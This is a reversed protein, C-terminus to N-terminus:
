RNKRRVIIFVGACLTICVPVLTLVLTYQTAQAETISEIEYNAFEKFDLGVPVPERGCLGIASLMFDGNGYANSNIYKSSMFDTSGCLMVFSSTDVTGYLEQESHKEVSVALLRFPDAATAAAVERDNVWATASSSSNFMDYVGRGLTSNYGNTFSSSHYIAAANEFVVMPPNSRDLLDEAWASMLESDSYSAVVSSSDGLLSNSNDRVRYVEEGPQRVSLGWDALFEELQPLEGTEPSIFVMYSKRQDLFDDIKTIEDTALAGDNKALFDNKPDFTILIRCEEPIDQTSLDIPMYRYGANELVTFFPYLYNGDDDTDAITEGHNVTYCALPSEARTVALIAAAFAKEGNYGYPEDNLFMYFSKLTRIRYESGCEIIVSDAAISDTNSSLYQQFRSPHTKADVEEVTVYDPFKTRLEDANQWVYNLNYEEDYNANRYTSEKIKDKEMGFLINIKVNEDRWGEDGEKLNNEANYAKNEARFKDLMEIPSDSGNDADREGILDLFDESFTFHYEPTFDIYWRFRSTLLSFVVNFIVIAAIILATVAVSTGGYRLKRDTSTKLRM